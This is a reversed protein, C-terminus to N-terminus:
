GSSAKKDRADLNAAHRFMRYALVSGTIPTSGFTHVGVCASACVCACVGVCACVRVCVCVPNPTSGVEPTSILRTVFCATHVCAPQPNVGLRLGLCVYLKAKVLALM